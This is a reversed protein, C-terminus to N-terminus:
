EGELLNALEGRTMVHEPNDTSFEAGLATLLSGAYGETLPANLDASADALGYSVLTDLCAQADASTGGILIYLAGLYDGVTAEEDVGFTNEGRPALFGDAVAAMVVAYHEHDEPLDEFGASLDRAEVNFPNMVADYLDRSATVAAAGGATGRIGTNMMDAIYAAFTKLSEPTATKLARMTQLTLDDPKGSIRNNLAEAAGTFDGAPKAKDSYASIIYNDVRDQDVALAAVKDPLDDFYAFTEAVNPDRYTYIYMEEGNSECYAGYAGGRDRLDPWLLMDSILQGLAGYAAGDAEPDIATWPASVINFQINTDAILGERSAAAPLDYAVPERATDELKAFFADALPRNLALSDECAAVAAVAGSRNAFFKQVKELRAAVEEPNEKM